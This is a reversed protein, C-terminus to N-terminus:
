DNPDTLDPEADDAGVSDASVKAAKMDRDLQVQFLRADHQLKKWRQWWALWTGLSVVATVMIFIWIYRIQTFPLLKSSSSDIAFFGMSFTTESFGATLTLLSLSSLPTKCVCGHYPPLGNDIRGLVEDFPRGTAFGM